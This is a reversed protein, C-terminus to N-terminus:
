RRQELVAIRRQLDRLESVTVRTATVLALVIVAVAIILLCGVQQATMEKQKNSM